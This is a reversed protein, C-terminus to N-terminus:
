ILAQDLLKHLAQAIRRERAEDKPHEDERRTAVSGAERGTPPPARSPM